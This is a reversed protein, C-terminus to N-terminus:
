CDGSLNRYSDARCLTARGRRRQRLLVAGAGAGTALVLAGVALLAIVWVPIGGGSVVSYAGPGTHVTRSRAPAPVTVLGAWRAVLGAGYDIQVTCPMAVGRPLGPANVAILARGHPLVTAAYVAYSRTRGAATCSAKGTGHAFTQGTNALDVNLRDMSGIAQGSVGPIQLRTTMRALVGVTVAVGVTVQQIITVRASKGKNGVVKPPPKAVPEVTLGALYQGPPTGRPVRVGFKVLEATGGPLTINGTLGSVWCGTGSCSGFAQTFASGGNAATVGAASGIKLKEEVQGQNSVLATDTVFEGARMTLMFYPAIRGTRDPAPTVGFQGNGGAPAAAAPLVPIAAALAAVVVAAALGARSISRSRAGRPRGHRHHLYACANAVSGVHGSIARLRHRMMTGTLGM